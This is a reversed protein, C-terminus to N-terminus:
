MNEVRERYRDTHTVTDTQISQVGVVHMYTCTYIQIADWHCQITDTVYAVIHFTCWIEGYPISVVFYRYWMGNYRYRYWIIIIGGHPISVVDWQIQISVM